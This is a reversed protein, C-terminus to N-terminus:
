NDWLMFVQNQTRQRIRKSTSEDITGGGRLRNESYGNVVIDVDLLWMRLKHALIPVKEVTPVLFGSAYFFSDVM